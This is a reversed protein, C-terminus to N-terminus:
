VDINIQMSIILSSILDMVCKHHHIKVNMHFNNSSASLMQCQDIAPLEVLPQDM